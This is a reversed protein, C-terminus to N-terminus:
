ARHERHIAPRDGLMTRALGLNTLGQLDRGLRTQADLEVILTNRQDDASMTRLAADDRIRAARLLVMVAGVGELQADDLAQYSETSQNSHKTMEVVLTNRMDGHSMANLERQTRFRGALLVGRLWSSVNGPVQGRIALDSGLAILVLELTTFAQLERGQGTQAGMEVILTNRQDDASMQRLAADDRIGTHRLFVMAAGMGGLTWDDQGQYFGISQNSHKSLEVILTNRMDEYSMANLERQTRFGGLLLVGRTPFGEDVDFPGTLLSAGFSALYANVGNTIQDKVSDDIQRNTAWAFDWRGSSTAGASTGVFTGYRTGGNRGGIGYVHHRDLFRAVSAPSALLGGSGARPELFFDGGYVDVEKAGPSLDLQSDLMIGNGDYGDVEGPLRAGAATRAGDLDRLGLGHALRRTLFEVFRMGSAREVVAALVDFATNSYGTDKGPDTAPPPPKMGPTFALPAVDYMYRAQEGVSAHHGLTLSVDRLKLGTSDDYDHPLGSLSTALQRITIGDKRKDTQAANVLGLYAFASAGLDLGDEDALLQVAASTFLKSVSALRFTTTTTTLPNGPEAWTYARKAYITRGSAIAVSAARVGNAQMVMQFVGDLTAAGPVAPGDVHWQKTMTAGQHGDTM